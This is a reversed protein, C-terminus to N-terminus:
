KVLWGEIPISVPAADGRKVQLPFHYKHSASPTPTPGAAEIAKCVADAIAAPATMGGSTALNIITEVTPIFNCITVALPQVEAILTTFNTAPSCGALFLGLSLAPLLVLKRM